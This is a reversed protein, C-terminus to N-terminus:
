KCAVPIIEKFDDFYHVITWFPTGLPQQDPDRHYGYLDKITVQVKCKVDVNVKGNKCCQKKFCCNAKYEVDSTPDDKDLYGGSGITGGLDWEGPSYYSYHELNGLFGLSVCRNNSINEAISKTLKRLEPTLQMNLGRLGSKVRASFGSKANFEKTEGNGHRYHWRARMWGWSNSSGPTDWEDLTGPPCECLGYPDVENTPCSQVYEYLNTGDIYQDIVGFRHSHKANPVVGLPDFQMWRGLSYNYTRNVNDQLGTEIDVRKGTFFYPNGIFSTSDCQGYADYLYYERDEERGFKGGIVGMVSGLADRLYYWRTEPGSPPPPPSTWIWNSAFTAYDEFDVMGSSDYDYTANYCADNSDCLWTGCFAALAIIGNADYPEEPEEPTFMALMEDLRNGYVFSREWSGGSVEAIVRGM